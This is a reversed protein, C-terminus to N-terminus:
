DALCIAGPNEWEWYFGHKEAIEELKPDIWPYGGRYEGYYDVFGKGDEGSILLKGDVQIITPTVMIDDYTKTETNWRFGEREVASIDKILKTLKAKTM